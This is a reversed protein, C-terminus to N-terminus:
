IETYVCIRRYHNIKLIFISVRTQGLIILLSLEFHLISNSFSNETTTFAAIKLLYGEPVLIKDIVRLPVILGNM